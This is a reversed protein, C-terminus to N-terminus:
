ILVSRRGSVVEIQLSLPTVVIMVRFFRPGAVRGDIRRRAFLVAEYFGIYLM